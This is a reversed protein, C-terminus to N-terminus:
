TIKDNDDDDDFFPTLSNAMPRLMPVSPSYLLPQHTSCRNFSSFLQNIAASRVISASCHFVSHIPPSGMETENPDFAMKTGLVTLPQKLTGSIPLRRPACLRNTDASLFIHHPRLLPWGRKRRFLAFSPPLVGAGGGQCSSFAMTPLSFMLGRGPSAPHLGM